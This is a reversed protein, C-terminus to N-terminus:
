GRGWSTKKKKKKQFVPTSHAYSRKPLAHALVLIGVFFSTEEIDIPQLASVLVKM